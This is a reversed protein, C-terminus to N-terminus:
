VFVGRPGGENCLNMGGGDHSRQVDVGAVESCLKV